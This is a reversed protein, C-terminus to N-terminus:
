LEVAGTMRHPEKCDEPWGLPSVLRFHLSYNLMTKDASREIAASGEELIGVCGTKGTLDFLGKSYFANFRVPGAERVASAPQIFISTLERETTDSRVSVRRITNSLLVQVGNGAVGQHCAMQSKAIENDSASKPHCNAADPIVGVKVNVSGSNCATVCATVVALLIAKNQVAVAMGELAARPQKQERPPM